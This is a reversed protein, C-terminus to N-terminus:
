TARASQGLGTIMSVIENKDTSRTEREGVQDALDMGCTNKIFGSINGFRDLECLLNVSLKSKDVHDQFILVPNATRALQPTNRRGRPHDDDAGIGVSTKALLRQRRSCNGKHILLVQISSGQPLDDFVRESLM